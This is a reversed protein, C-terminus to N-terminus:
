QAIARTFETYFSTTILAFLSAFTAVAGTEVHKEEIAELFVELVGHRRTLRATRLKAANAGAM